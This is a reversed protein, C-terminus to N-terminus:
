VCPLDSSLLFVTMSFLLLNSLIDVVSIMLSIRILVVTLYEDVDVLIFTKSFPFYTSSLSHLFQFKQVYTCFAAIHLM